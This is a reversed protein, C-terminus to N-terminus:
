ASSPDSRGARRRARWRSAGLGFPVLLFEIGLLGCASKEFQGNSEYAGLDCAAIGDQNGDRPRPAGTQDVAPCHADDGADIAPSGRRLRHFAPIGELPALKPDGALAGPLACSGDGILNVGDQTLTGLNGCDAGNTTGAVITQSLHMTGLNRLVPLAIESWSDAITVNGLVVQGGGNNFIAAGSGHAGNHSLTSDIVAMKSSSGNFLAGGIGAFNAVVSSDVLSLRGAANGIGGGSTVAANGFVTCRTLRLEGLNQIGGGAGNAANDMVTCDSLTATADLGVAIGGGDGGSTGDRVTLDDALLTAHVLLVLPIVAGNGDLTAGRGHITVPSSADSAVVVSEDLTYVCSPALWLIDEEGNRNAATIADRLAGADCPVVFAAAGADRAALAIAIPALLLSALLSPRQLRRRASSGDM